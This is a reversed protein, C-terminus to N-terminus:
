WCGSVFKGLFIIAIAVAEGLIRGHLRQFFNEFVDLTLYCDERIKLQEHRLRPACKLSPHRIGM